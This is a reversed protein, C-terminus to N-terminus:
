PKNLPNQPTSLPPFASEKWEGASVELHLNIPQCVSKVEFLSQTQDQSRAAEKISLRQADIDAASVLVASSPDSALCLSMDQDSAYDFWIRLPPKEARFEPAAYAVFFNCTWLTQPRTAGIGSQNFPQCPLSTNIIQTWYHVLLSGQWTVPSPELVPVGDLGNYRLSVKLDVKSLPLTRLSLQEVIKQTPLKWVNEGPQHEPTLVQGQAAFVPTYCPLWKELADLPLEKGQDNRLIHRATWQTELMTTVEGNGIDIPAPPNVMINNELDNAGKWFFLFPTNAMDPRTLEWIHPVCGRYQGQIPFVEDGQFMEPPQFDWPQGDRIFRPREQAEGGLPVLGAVFGTTAPSTTFLCKENPCPNDVGQESLDHWVGNAFIFWKQWAPQSGLGPFLTQFWAQGRMPLLWDAFTDPSPSFFQHIQPKAAWWQSSDVDPVQCPFFVNWEVNAPLGALAVDADKQYQERSSDPDTAWEGPSFVGDTWHLVITRAYKKEASLKGIKKFMNAYFIEPGGFRAETIKDILPRAELGLLLPAEEAPNPYALFLVDPATPAPSVYESPRYYRLLLRLIAGMMPKSKAFDPDCEKMSSSADLVFIVLNKEPQFLVPSLPLPAQKPEDTQWPTPAPVSPFPPYLAKGMGFDPSTAPTPVSMQYPYTPTPAVTSSPTADDCAQLMGGFFLSVILLFFIPKKM